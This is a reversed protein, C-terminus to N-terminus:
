RTAIVVCSTAIYAMNDRTVAAPALHEARKMLMKEPRLTRMRMKVKGKRMEVKGKRAETM